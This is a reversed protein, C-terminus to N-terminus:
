NSTVWCTLVMQRQSAERWREDRRPRALWWSKIDFWGQDSGRARWGKEWNRGRNRDGCHCVATPNEAVAGIYSGGRVGLGSICLRVLFPFTVNIFVWHNGRFPILHLQTCCHTKALFNNLTSKRWKISIWLRILFPFLSLKLKLKTTRLRKMHVHFTILKFLSFSFLFCIFFFKYVLIM